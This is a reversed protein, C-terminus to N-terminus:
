HTPPVFPPPASSREQSLEYVKRRFDSKTQDIGAEYNDHYTQPRGVNPNYGGPTITPKLNKVRTGVEDFQQRGTMNAYASTVPRNPVYERESVHETRKHINLGMNTTAQYEPLNRDLLLEGHMFVQGKSGSVPATTSITSIERVGNEMYLEDIPTVYIDRSKNAEVDSYLYEQIYKGTDMHSLDSNKQMGSSNINVDPYLPTQIGQTVEGFEGNVRLQPSLGSFGSVNVPNKIVHRVEYGEVLPSQIKYTATPRACARLPERLVGKQEVGPQPCMAKKSFDTFGPQTYSSTWMRPLRSLPLLERLDRMPPRFAGKDMIRYPLYAQKSSGIDGIRGGGNNGFNDYSIAVMPNIGRPYVSIAENFRNTAQDIMETIESTEGVKDVKRTTISKPPDRLINMNTGWSDVSPLTAKATHGVIGKYSISM